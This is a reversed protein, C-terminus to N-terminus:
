SQNGVRNFFVFNAIQFLTRSIVRKAVAFKMKTKNIIKAM